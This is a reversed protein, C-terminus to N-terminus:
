PFIGLAVGARLTRIKGLEAYSIIQGEPSRLEMSVSPSHAMVIHVVDIPLEALLAIHGGYAGHVVQDGLASHQVKDGKREYSVIKDLDHLLAGAIVYDLNLKVGYEEQLQKGMAYAGSAAANSHKMLSDFPADMGFPAEELTKFSSEKWAIFWARIVGNRVGADKIKEILPFAKRIAEEEKAPVTTVTRAM